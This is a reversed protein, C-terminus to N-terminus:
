ALKQSFDVAHSASIEGDSFDSCFADVWASNSDSQKQKMDLYIAITADRFARKAHLFKVLERPDMQLNEDQIEGVDEADYSPNNALARKIGQAMQRNAVGSCYKIAEDFGM